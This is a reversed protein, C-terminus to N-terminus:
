PWSAIARFSRTHATRCIRMDFARDPRFRAIWPQLKSSNIPPMGTLQGEIGASLSVDYRQRKVSNRESCNTTWLQASKGATACSRRSSQQQAQSPELALVRTHHCRKGRRRGLHAAAARVDMWSHRRLCTFSHLPLLTFPRHLPKHRLCPPRSPGAALFNM